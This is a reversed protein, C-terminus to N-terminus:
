LRPALGAEIEKAWAASSAVITIEEMPFAESGRLRDFDTAVGGVLAGYAKLRSKWGGAGIVPFVVRRAEPGINILARLAVSWAGVLVADTYDGEDEWFCVGLVHRYETLGCGAGDLVLSDAAGFPRGDAMRQLREQETVRALGPGRRDVISRAVRGYLRPGSKMGLVLVDAELELVDGVVADISCNELWSM